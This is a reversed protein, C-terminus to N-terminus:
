LILGIIEFISKQLFIWAFTWLALFPWFPIQTNIKTKFWKKIKQYLVIFISILSGFIYTLFLWEISFSYWLLLGMFIAIRLDGGWMWAGGSVAIQLFLFVFIIYIWISANLFINDNINLWFYKLFGFIIWFILFLILFDYKFELEKFMIFYYAFISFILILFWLINELLSSNNNFYEIINIIWFSQLLLLFVVFIIWFIMTKDEIELFLIDYFSYIISIFSIVLWFFLKLIENFNWILILNVDILFYWILSFLIWTSIELFPYIISIKAKCYKCKWFNKLWSFIPILEFAWLTHNCKPCHSRWNLIWSEGSRLRYIIVSAFSGFLTWFIFFCIYFIITFNM